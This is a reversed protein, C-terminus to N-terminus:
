LNKGATNPYLKLAVRRKDWAESVIEDSSGDHRWEELKQKAFKKKKKFRISQGSFVHGLSFFTITSIHNRARRRVSRHAMFINNIRKQFKVAATPFKLSNETILVGLLLTESVRQFFPLVTVSGHKAQPRRKQTM